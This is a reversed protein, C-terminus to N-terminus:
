YWFHYSQVELIVGKSEAQTWIYVEKSSVKLRGRLLMVQLNSWM